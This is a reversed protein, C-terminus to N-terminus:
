NVSDRLFGRMLEAVERPKDYLLVHGAGEIVDGRFNALGARWVALMSPDTLQDLSGYLVLTPAKINRMMPEVGNLLFPRTEEIIRLFAARHEIARDIFARRIPEPMEPPNPFNLRLVEAFSADDSIDLPVEGAIVRKMFANQVPAAVGAPSLLVIKGVSNPYTAAYAAAFAGGMSTGIVDVRGLKEHVRLREIQEVYFRCDHTVGAHMPHEGFGPLDPIVVRHTARLIPAIAMMAEGSTGLGHLVLATRRPPQASDVAAPESELLRWACGDIEAIRETVGAQAHGAAMALAFARAPDNWIWVAAATTVILLSAIILLVRHILRKM